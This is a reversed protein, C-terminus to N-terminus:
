VGIRVSDMEDILDPLKELEKTRINGYNPIQTDEQKEHMDMM